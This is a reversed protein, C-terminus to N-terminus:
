KNQAGDKITKVSLLRALGINIDLIGNPMSLYIFPQESSTGLSTRAAVRSATLSCAFTVIGHSVAIAVSMVVGSGVNFSRFRFGKLGLSILSACSYTLAM